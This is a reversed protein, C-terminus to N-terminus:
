GSPHEGFVASGTGGRRARVWPGTPQSRRPKTAANTKKAKRLTEQYKEDATRKRAKDAALVDSVQYALRYSFAEAFAPPWSAPSRIEPTDRVYRITIPGSDEVLLEQGGEPGAEISYNDSDEVDLEPDVIEALRVLDPPLPFATRELAIPYADSAARATLAKTRLAFSWHAEALVFLFVGDWARKCSRAARSNVDDLSDIRDDEGIHGLALNAIQTEDLM